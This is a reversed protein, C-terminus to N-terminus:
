SNGDRGISVVGVFILLGTAVSRIAVLNSDEMILVVEVDLVWQHVLPGQPEGLRGTALYIYTSILLQPNGRVDLYPSLQFSRSFSTM